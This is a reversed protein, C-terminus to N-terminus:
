SGGLGMPGKLALVDCLRQSLMCPELGLLGAGSEAEKKTKRNQKSVPDRTAWDAQLEQDKAQTEETSPHCTQVVASPEAIAKGYWLPEGQLFYRSSM